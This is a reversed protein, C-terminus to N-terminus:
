DAYRFKCKKHTKLHGSLCWQISRYNFGDKAADLISEYIHEKGDQATKIIKRRRWATESLHARTLQNNNNEKHTVWRLNEVRNDLPNTNIHDVCPKYDPNDIFAMAICRAVIITQKKRLDVNYASFQLWKYKRGYIRQKIIRPERYFHRNNLDTVFRRISKIRGFSSAQYYGEWGPIDMWVEGPM